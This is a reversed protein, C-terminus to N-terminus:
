EADGAVSAEAAQLVGDNATYAFAVVALNDPNWNSHVSVTHSVSASVNAIIDVAEGNIGNATARFVHNHEYALNTSGDPMLQISTIGNEIIWLQLYSDHVDDTAIVSANIIVNEKNADLAATLDISVNTDREIESRVATAWDAYGILGSRRNVQGIPLGMSDKFGSNTIITNGEDVCLGPFGAAEYMADGEKITLRSSGGHIAVAIIQAGYQSQLESIANHAKPCNVCLQGTYDELLVSRKVEVSPLEIYREDSEVDNCATFCAGLSVAAAFTIIHTKVNM